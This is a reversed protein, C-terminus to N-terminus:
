SAWVGRPNLWCLNDFSSPDVPATPIRMFPRFSPPCDLRAIADGSEDLGSSPRDLARKEINDFETM